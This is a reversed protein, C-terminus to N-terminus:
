YPLACNTRACNRKEPRLVDALAGSVRRWDAEDYGSAEGAIKRAVESPCITAGSAREALLRVVAVSALDITM